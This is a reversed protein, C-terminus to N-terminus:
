HRWVAVHTTKVTEAGSNGHQDQIICYVSIDRYNDFDYDTFEYKFTNSKEDSLDLSSYTEEGDCLVIWKYSYPAFGGDVEVTFSAEEQSSGMYYDVPNNVITLHPYHEKAYVSVRNSTIERGEIDTVTCYVEIVDTYDFDYDSFEVTFEDSTFSTAGHTTTKAGSDYCVVWDYYYNPVGGEITISFTVEEQSSRMYYDEPQSTIKFDPKPHVYAKNSTLKTGNSDTVTCYVEIVDTYDFDYDTIEVTFTDLTSSSPDKTTTNGGDGYVLTWAYTYDPAGGEIEVTFSVEEQSIQMYHNKPNTVFKLEPVPDKDPAADKFCRYLFTVIQSRDCNMLPSFYGGGTGTTINNDVAWIVADRYYADVSVDAFPANGTPKPSGMTRWLFTVIQSRDCKMTPSFKGDGTGTTINNEVAWAVAKFYYADSKVDSFDVKSNMPEPSGKARWLFTVAQARDCVMNPSFTTDTTGTTIKNEVAWIVADEYYAGDPVDTFPHKAAGIPALFCQTFILCTIVLTLFKKM